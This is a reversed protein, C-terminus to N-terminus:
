RANDAIMLTTEIAMAMLGILATAPTKTPRLHAVNRAFDALTGDQEHHVLDREDDSIGLDLLALDWAATIDNDGVAPHFNQAARRADKFAATATNLQM